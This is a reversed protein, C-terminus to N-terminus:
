LSPPNYVVSVKRVTRSVPFDLLLTSASTTDPSLEGGTYQQDLESCWNYQQECQKIFVHYAFCSSLPQFFVQPAMPVASM